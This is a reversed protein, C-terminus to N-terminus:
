EIYIEVRNDMYMMPYLYIFYWLMSAFIRWRGIKLGGVGWRYGRQIIEQQIYPNSDLIYARVTFFNFCLIDEEQQDEIGYEALRVICDGRVM